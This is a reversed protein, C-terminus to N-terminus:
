KEHYIYTNMFERIQQQLNDALVRYKRQLNGYYDGGTSKSLKGLEVELSEVKASLEGFKHALLETREEDTLFSENFKKIKM